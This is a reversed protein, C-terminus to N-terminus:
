TAAQLLKELKKTLLPPTILTTVLVVIIIVAFMEADLVGIAKGISAFILGVEGRPVMGLGVTLKDYGKLFISALLKGVIALASLVLGLILVDLQTFAMVDVQFGMLVFFIPAFLYQLPAHIDELSHDGEEFEQM